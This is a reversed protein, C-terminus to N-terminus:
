PKRDGRSFNRNNPRRFKPKEIPLIIEDDNKYAFKVEGGKTEIIADALVTLLLTLSKESDDNAPIAIDVIGPNVNSDVIGITKINLIKAEKIAIVDHKPDAVIMINPMQKM